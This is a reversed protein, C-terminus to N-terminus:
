NIEELSTQLAELDTPKSIIKKDKDLIFYTPTSNIGYALAVPNDWHELGLVHIFNPFESITKQWNEKGDELGFAIVKLNKPHADLYSKVQPLEDLCHGCTSSWFVLLYHEVGSLQHLSTNVPKGDAEYTIPFDMATSGTGGNKYTMLTKYLEKNDTEKALKFLYTDSIYNAVEVNEIDVMNKWIHELLSANIVANNVGISNVVTDIHQKYVENDNGASMGFVYAMVRDSLFDSSQLLPNNFDVNKLFTTKLNNSYTTVDEFDTPIYPRNAKIFTLAMTGKAADEFAAQTDKLTKFIDKFAKKDTSEQAYFNGITMNVLEMSKTYSSWLKNEASEKFELGDTLSFNLVIDEKGDYIFDFNNTDEPIGYVIKYMGATATSDLEISFNGNEDVKARNLYSITTPSAKYLLAYTFDGAPSFTGQVSHQSFLFMPVFALLYLINKM